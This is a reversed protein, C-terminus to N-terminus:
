DSDSDSVVVKSKKTSKKVPETKKTPKVVPKDDEDSDSDSEVKKVPQKVASTKTPKVVPKEDEDSDSDSEVKKVPQKVASTKTQKVPEVDSDSDSQEVMKKSPKTQKVEQKIEQKVEPENSSSSVNNSSAQINTFVTQTPEENIYEDFLNDYNRNRSNSNNKIQIIDICCLEWNIKIKRKVDEDKSTLEATTEKPCFVFRRYGKFGLLKELETANKVNKETYKGYIQELEHSNVCENPKKTGEPISDIIRHKVTITYEQKSEIENDSIEKVIPQQTEEDIFTFKYKLKSFELKQKTKDTFATYIKKREEYYISVNNKDLVENNYYIVKRTPIKLNTKKFQPKDVKKTDTSVNVNKLQPKPLNLTRKLKYLEHLNGIVNPLCSALKDDYENIKTELKLCEPQDPYITIPLFNRDNEEYFKSSPVQPFEEYIYGTTEPPSIEKQGNKLKSIKGQSWLKDTPKYEIPDFIITSMKDNLNSSNNLTKNNM